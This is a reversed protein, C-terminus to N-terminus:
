RHAHTLGTPRPAANKYKAPARSIRQQQLATLPQVVTAISGAGTGGASVSETIEKVKM